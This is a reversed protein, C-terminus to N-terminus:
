VGLPTGNREWNGKIEAIKLGCEIAEQLTGQLVVGGCLMKLKVISGTFGMGVASTKYQSLKRGGGGRVKKKEISIGQLHLGLVTCFGIHAAGGQGKLHATGDCVTFAHIKQLSGHNDGM